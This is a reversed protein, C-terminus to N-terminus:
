IQQKAFKVLKEVLEPEETVWHGLGPVIVVERGDAPFKEALPEISGSADTFLPDQDGIVFRSLFDDKIPWLNKEPEDFTPLFGSMYIGFKLTNGFALEGRQALATVIAGWVCGQSFGLVGRVDCDITASKISTVSSDFARYVKKGSIEDTNTDLWDFHNESDWFKGDVFWESVDQGKNKYAGSFSDVFGAAEAHAMARGGDPAILRFGVAELANGLPGLSRLMSVGNM